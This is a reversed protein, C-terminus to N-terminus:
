NNSKLVSVSQDKILKSIYIHVISVSMYFLLDTYWVVETYFLLKVNFLIYIIILSISNM